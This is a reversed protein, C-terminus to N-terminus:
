FANASTAYINFGEKYFGIDVRVQNKDRENVTYRMGTGFTPIWSSDNFNMFERSVTNLTTFVVGGFRKYVPFRFESQFAYSCRDQYRRDSIGRGTKPTGVYYMDFFPTEGYKSGVFLDFGLTFQKIPIFHAIRVSLNEYDFDSGFRTLAKYYRIKISTGKQTTFINDRDDYLIEIGANSITGGEWGVPQQRELLGGEEIHTFNMADFQYLVGLYIPSQRLRESLVARIRPFKVYYLELDSKDSQTGLGYYNYFYKYYGLEGEFRLDGEDKYLEFPLFFLIQNKLTYVAGFQFSSPRSESSENKFRFTAVGAAGFGLSSEPLYYAFPFTNVKFNKTTDVEVGATLDFFFLGKCFVMLLLKNM